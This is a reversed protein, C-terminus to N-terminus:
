DLLAALTELHEAPECDIGEGYLKVKPETGSPRVQLRLNPGMQLRLLGAEEFWEVSEEHSWAFHGIGAINCVIDIGGMASAAAEVSREVAPADTVDLEGATATGGAAVIEAATDDAGKLDVCWVNGGEAALRIAVSRGIGSGAGTLFIRKGAFRDPVISEVFQATNKM